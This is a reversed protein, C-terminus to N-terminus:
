FPSASCWDICICYDGAKGTQFCYHKEPNNKKKKKARETEWKEEIELVDCKTAVDATLWWVGIGFGLVSLHMPALAHSKCM